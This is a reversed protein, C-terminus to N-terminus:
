KAAKRVTAKKEAQVAATSAEQGAKAKEAELEAKAKELEAELDAKMKVYQEYPVTRGKGYAVIKGADDRIDYGDAQYRDKQTVDIDYVKNGKEATM